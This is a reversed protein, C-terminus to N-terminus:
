QHTPLYASACIEFSSERWQTVTFSSLRQVSEVFVFHCNRRRDYGLHCGDASRMSIKGHIDTKPLTVTVDCFMTRAWSLDAPKDEGTTFQCPSMAPDHAKTPLYYLLLNAQNASWPWLCAPAGRDLSNKPDAVGAHM